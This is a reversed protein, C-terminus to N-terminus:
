AALKTFVVSADYTAKNHFKDNYNISSAYYDVLETTDLTTIKVITLHKMLCAVLQM